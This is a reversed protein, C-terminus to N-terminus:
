RARSSPKKAGRPQLIGPRLLGTQIYTVVKTTVLARQAVRQPSSWHVLCIEAIETRRITGHAIGLSDIDANHQSPRHREIQSIYIYVYCIYKYAHLNWCHDYIIPFIILYWFIIAFMGLKASKPTSQITLHFTNRHLEVDKASIRNLDPGVSAEESKPGRGQLHEGPAALLTPHGPYSSCNKADCASQFMACQLSPFNYNTAVVMKNQTQFVCQLSSTDELSSVGGTKATKWTCLQAHRKKCGIDFPRQLQIWVLFCGVFVAGWFFRTVFRRRSSSFKWLCSRKQCLNWTINSVWFRDNLQQNGGLVCVCVCQLIDYWKLSSFRVRNHILHNNNFTSQYIHATCDTIICYIINM